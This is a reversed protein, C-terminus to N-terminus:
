VSHVGSLTKRVKMITSGTTNNTVHRKIEQFHVTIWLHEYEHQNFPSADTDRDRPRQSHKTHVWTHRRWLALTQPDRGVLATGLADGRGLAGALMFSDNMSYTSTVSASEKRKVQDDLWEVFCWYACMFVCGRCSSKFTCVCKWM